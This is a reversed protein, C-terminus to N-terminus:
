KPVSVTLSEFQVDIPLRQPSSVGLGIKGDTFNFLTDTVTKVVTGNLPSASNMAKAYWRTHTPGKEMRSRQHVVPRWPSMAKNPHFVPTSLMSPTSGPTPFQSNTGAMIM